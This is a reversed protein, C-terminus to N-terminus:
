NKDETATTHMANKIEFDKGKMEAHAIQNKLFGVQKNRIGRKNM